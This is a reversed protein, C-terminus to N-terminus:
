SKVIQNEIRKSKFFKEVEEDSYTTKSTMLSTLKDVFYGEISFGKVNGTKVENLWFEKNDIKMTGMLTGKPVKYGLSNAKDNDPDNVIWSEALYIDNVPTKHDKNVKKQYGHKLFNYGLTKVTQESFWIEFEEGTIRDYRYIKKNPILVPGVVIQEDENVKAFTYKDTEKTFAKFDEEIAPYDVFSIADFSDLSEESPLLEILKM